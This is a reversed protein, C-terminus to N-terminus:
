LVSKLKVREDLYMSYCDRSFTWRSPIKFRTCCSVMFNKFGDGEVFKFPLEDIILMRELAKRISEQDFNWTGLIGLQDSQSDDVASPPKLTLLYQRTDKPQPMKM